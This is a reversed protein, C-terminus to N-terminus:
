LSHASFLDKKNKCKFEQIFHNVLHNNFDEGGLHTDSATAKIELIGDEITLSV